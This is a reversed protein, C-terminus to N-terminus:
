AETNWYEWNSQSIEVQSPTEVFPLIEIGVDETGCVAM